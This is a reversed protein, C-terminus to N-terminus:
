TYRYVSLQPESSREVSRHGKKKAICSCYMILMEELGSLNMELRQRWTGGTGSDNKVRPLSVCSGAVRPREIGFCCAMCGTRRPARQSGSTDHIRRLPDLSFSMTGNGEVTFSLHVLVMQHRFLLINYLMENKCEPIKKSSHM